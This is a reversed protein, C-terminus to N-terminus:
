YTKKKKGTTSVTEVTTVKVEVTPTHPEPAPTTERSINKKRWSWWSRSTEQKIPEKNNSLNTSPM